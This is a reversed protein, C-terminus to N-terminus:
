VKALIQLPAQCQKSQQRLQNTSGKMAEIAQRKLTLEERALDIQIVDRQHSSLKKKMEDGKTDRVVRDVERTESTKSKSGHKDRESEGDSTGNGNQTQSCIGNTLSTVAPSGGWIRKLIDFNEYVLRGSSSRTGKDIVAKYGSRLEKIKHKIRNYREKKLNKLRDIRRKHEEDNVSEKESIDLGKYEMENKYSELTGLLALVKDDDWKWRNNICTKQDSQSNNKYTRAVFNNDTNENLIELFEETYDTCYLQDSNTEAPKWRKKSTITSSSSFCIVPHSYIAEM